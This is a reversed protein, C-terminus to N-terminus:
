KLRGVCIRFPMRWAITAADRPVGAQALLRRWDRRTFARAVSVPGDHRVFPHWGAATSLAKFGYFALPHRHLDNIFWGRRALREMWAIFAVVQADTMHHAVMSSVIFDPPQAPAYDFVDGTLYRIGLRGDTAAEAAPRSRPNLDVGTLRPRLGAKLAWAHIARLMDGQGYGVDLVSVEAGRPLARTARRLWDLTPPRARTVTNVKALDSLCAAFEAPTVGPADMMEDERARQAFSRM